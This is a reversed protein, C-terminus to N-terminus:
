LHQWCRDSGPEAARSCAAGSRTRAACRAGGAAPGSARRGRPVEAEAAREGRLLSAAVLGIGVALLALMLRRLM